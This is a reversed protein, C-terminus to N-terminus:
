STNSNESLQPGTTLKIGPRPMKAIEIFLDPCMLNDLSRRETYSFTIRASQKKEATHNEPRPLLPPRPSWSMPKSLLTSITMFHQSNSLSYCKLNVANWIVFSLSICIVFVKKVLLRTQSFLPEWAALPSRGGTRIYTAISQLDRRINLVEKKIAKVQRGLKEDRDEARRSDIDAAALRAAKEDRARLLTM